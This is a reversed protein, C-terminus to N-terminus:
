NVLQPPRVSNKSQGRTISKGEDVDSLMSTTVEDLRVDSPGILEM